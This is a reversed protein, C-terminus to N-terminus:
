PWVISVMAFEPDERLRLAEIATYSGELLLGDGPEFESGVMTDVGGDGDGDGDGDGGCNGAVVELIDDDYM